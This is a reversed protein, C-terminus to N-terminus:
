GRYRELLIRHIMENVSIGLLDAEEKLKNKVSPQMLLHVHVTKPEPRLIYGEPVELKEMGVEIGETTPEEQDTVGDPLFNFSADQTFDKKRM